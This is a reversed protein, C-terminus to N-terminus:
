LGSKILFREQISVMCLPLIKQFFRRSFVKQSEFLPYVYEFRPNYHRAYPLEHTTQISGCACYM